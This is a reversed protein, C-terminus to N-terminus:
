GVVLGKTRVLGIQQFEIDQRKKKSKAVPGKSIDNTGSPWDESRLEHGNNRKSWSVQGSYSVRIKCENMLGVNVSCKINAM